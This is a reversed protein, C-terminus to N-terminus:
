GLNAIDGLMALNGKEERQKRKKINEQFARRLVPAQSGLERNYDEDYELM